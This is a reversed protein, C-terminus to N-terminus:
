RFKEDFSKIYMNVIVRKVRRKLTSLHKKSPTAGIKAM